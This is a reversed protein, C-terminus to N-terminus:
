ARGPPALGGRGRCPEPGSPFVPTEEAHPHQPCPPVVGEPVLGIMWQTWKTVADILGVTLLLIYTQTLLFSDPSRHSVDLLPSDRWVGAPFVDGHGFGEEPGLAMSREATLRRCLGIWARGLLGLM